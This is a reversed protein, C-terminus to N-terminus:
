SPQRPRETERVPCIIITESNKITQLLLSEVLLKSFYTDYLVDEHARVDCIAKKYLYEYNLTFTVNM